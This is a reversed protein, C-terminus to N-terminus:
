ARAKRGHRQTGRSSRRSRWWAALRHWWSAGGAYAQSQSPEASPGEALIAAAIEAPAEAGEPDREACAVALQAAFQRTMRDVVVAAGTTVLGALQGNLEIVGDIVVESGQPAPLVTFTANGQVRTSGRSDAGRAQMRGVHEAEDLELGVRAAFAVRIAAFKVALMADFTGDEHEAGLESGEICSVVANPDSIVEWVTDPPHPVLVSEAITIL